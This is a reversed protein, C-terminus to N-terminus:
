HMGNNAPPRCLAELREEASADGESAAWCLLTSQLSYVKRLLVTQQASCAHLISDVEQMACAPTPTLMLAMISALRPLRVCGACCAPSVITGIVFCRSHILWSHM